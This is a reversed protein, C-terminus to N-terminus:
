IPQSRDNAEEVMQKRVEQPITFLQSKEDFDFVGCLKIKEVYGNTTHNSLLFKGIIRKKVDLANMHGNVQLVMGVLLLTHNFREVFDKRNSNRCKEQEVVFKLIHKKLALKM